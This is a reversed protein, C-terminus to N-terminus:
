VIPQTGARGLASPREGPRIDVPCGSIGAEGMITDHALSGCIVVSM